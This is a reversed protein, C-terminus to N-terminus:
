DDEHIARCLHAECEASTEEGELSMEARNKRVMDAAVNEGQELWDNPVPVALGDVVIETHGNIDM